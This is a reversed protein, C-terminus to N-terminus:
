QLNYSMMWEKKIGVRTYFGQLEKGIYEGVNNLRLVKVKRGTTNEVLAKLDQFCSFLEDNTKLFYITKNSFDDIFTVCYEYGKLSKPLM